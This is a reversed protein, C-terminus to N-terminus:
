VFFTTIQAWGWASAKRDHEFKFVGSEESRGEWEEGEGEREEVRERGMKRKGKKGNMELRHLGCSTAAEDDGECKAAHLCGWGVESAVEVGEVQQEHTHESAMRNDGDRSVGMAGRGQGQWRSMAVVGGSQTSGAKGGWRSGAVINGGAGGVEVGSDGRSGFAELGMAVAGVTVLNVAPWRVRWGLWTALRWPARGTAVGGGWGCWTALQWLARGM